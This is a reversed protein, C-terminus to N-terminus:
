MSSPLEDKFYLLKLVATVHSTPVEIYSCLCPFETRLLPYGFSVNKLVYVTLM